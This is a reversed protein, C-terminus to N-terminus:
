KIIKIIILSYTKKINISNLFKYSFFIILKYYILINLNINFYINNTLNKFNYLIFKM